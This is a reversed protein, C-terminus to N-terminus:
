RASAKWDIWAVRDGPAYNRVGAVVTTNNITRNLSNSVGEEFSAATKHLTVKRKAPFVQLKSEVNFIKEKKVTGTFDGVVIRLQNLVHEGRPVHKLTYVFSFTRKLWPFIVKKAGQKEKLADPKSLYKFKKHKTDRYGISDPMIDEIICYYLPFLPNRKFVIEIKVDNGAEIINQKINREIKINSIPYILLLAMYLFIPLSGFFLFWSVFGGQFMAYAFLIGVFLLITLFKLSFLITRKM